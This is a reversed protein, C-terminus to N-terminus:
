TLTLGLGGTKLSMLFVRISDDNNFRRIAAERQQQSMSGDLRVVGGCGVRHAIETSTLAGQLLDLMRTFQSFVVAKTKKIRVKLKDKSKSGGEENHETEGKRAEAEMRAKAELDADCESLAKGLTQIIARIKSSAFVEEQGTGGGFTFRM